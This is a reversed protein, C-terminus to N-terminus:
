LSRAPDTGDQHQEVLPLQDPQNESSVPLAAHEAADTAGELPNRRIRVVEEYRGMAVLAAAKDKESQPLKVDPFGQELEDYIQMLQLLGGDRALLNFHCVNDGDIEYQACVVFGLHESLKSIDIEAVHKYHADPPAIALSCAASRICEVQNTSLGGRGESDKWHRHTIRYGYDPPDGGDKPYRRKVHDDKLNRFFLGDELFDGEELNPAIMGAICRSRLPVLSHM